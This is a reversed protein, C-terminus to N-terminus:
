PEGGGKLKAGRGGPSGATTLFVEDGRSKRLSRGGRERKRM